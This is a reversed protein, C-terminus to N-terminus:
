SLRKPPQRPIDRYPSVVQQVIQAPIDPMNIAFASFSFQGFSVNFNGAFVSKGFPVHDKKQVPVSKAGKADIVNHTALRTTTYDPVCLLYMATRTLKMKVYNYSVDNFRICGKINAYSTWDTIGPLDVPLKVETLDHKNYLGKATQETFFRDSRASFYRHLALQGGLSFLYIVLLGVALM